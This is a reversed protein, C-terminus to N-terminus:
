KKVYSNGVSKHHCMHGISVAFWFWFSVFNFRSIQLLQIVAVCCILFGMLAINSYIVRSFNKLFPYFVIMMLLTFGIIGEEALTSFLPVSREATVDQLNFFQNTGIGLIPNHMFADLSSYVTNFYPTTATDGVVTLSGVSFSGVIRAVTFSIPRIIHYGSAQLTVLGLFVIFLTFLTNKLLRPLLESRFIILILGVYVIAVSVVAYTSASFSVVIGVIIIFLKISKNKIKIIDIEFLLLLSVIIAPIILWAGLHRPELFISTARRLGLRETYGTYPYWKYGILDSISPVSSVNVTIFQIVAVISVLVSVNSYISVVSSLIGKEKKTADIIIITSFCLLYQVLFTLYDSYSFYNKSNFWFVALSLSISLYFIVSLLIGKNLDYSYKINKYVFILTILAVILWNIRLRYGYISGFVHSYLPLTIIYFYVIKRM